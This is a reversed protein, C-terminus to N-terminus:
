GGLYNKGKACHAWAERASECQRGCRPCRTPIKPRGGATGGSPNSRRSSTYSAWLSKVQADTLPANCRPCKM